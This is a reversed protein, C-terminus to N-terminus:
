LAAITSSKRFSRLPEPLLLLSTGNPATSALPWSSEFRVRTQGMLQGTSGSRGLSHSLRRVPNYDGNFPPIFLAAVFFFSLSAILM